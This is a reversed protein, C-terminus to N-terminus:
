HCINMHFDTMKWMAYTNDFIIPGFLCSVVDPVDETM